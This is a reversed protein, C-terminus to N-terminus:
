DWRFKVKPFKIKISKKATEIKKEFDLHSPSEPYLPRHGIQLQLSAIESNINKTEDSFFSNEFYHWIYEFAEESPHVRDPKAFRYDRLDDMFIEYAPFYHVHRFMNTLHAVVLILSAKSRTNEIFGDKLYRVPSISFIIKLDPFLTKINKITESWANIIQETTAISKIFKDQPLKHCNSVIQGTEKLRYFHASGFTIILYDTTLFFKHAKSISENIRNLCFELNPHSFKGHHDFSHYFDRHFDLDLASYIKNEKLKNLQNALVLPNFSIGFPSELSDFHYYNFKQFINDAFCSGMCLIRNEHQISLGSKYEPFTTRFTEL